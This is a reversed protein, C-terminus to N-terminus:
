YCYYNPKEDNRADFFECIYIKIMGYDEHLGDSDYAFITGTNAKGFSKEIEVKEEFSPSDHSIDYKEFFENKEEKDMDDFYYEDYEGDMEYVLIGKQYERAFCFCCGPENGSYIFNAEPFLFALREIVPYAPFWATYFNFGEEFVTVEYANWKTGWNKCSWDYWNYKGYLEKEESGLTGDFIYDPMPIIKNFDFDSDPSKVLKFIKELTEPNAEITLSNYCDNPM